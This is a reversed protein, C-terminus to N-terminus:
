KDRIEMPEQLAGSVTYKKAFEYFEKIFEANYDERQNEFESLEPNDKKLFTYIRRVNDPYMRQVVVGGGAAIGARRNIDTARM